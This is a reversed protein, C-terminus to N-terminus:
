HFLFFTQKHVILHILYTASRWAMSWWSAGLWCQLLNDIISVPVSKKCMGKKGLDEHLILCTM